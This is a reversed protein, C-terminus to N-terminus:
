SNEPSASGAFFDLVCADSKSNTMYDFLRALEFHDKPNDFVKAGMLKRLYKM